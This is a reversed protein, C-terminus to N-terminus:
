VGERVLELYISPLITGTNDSNSVFLRMFHDSQIYLTQDLELQDNPSMTITDIVTDVNSPDTTQLTITYSNSSGASGTEIFSRVKYYGSTRPTLRTAENNYWYLDGLVNSNANFEVDGWTVATPTSTTSVAQTNIVKVGSFASHNSIGTGPAFGLRYMTFNTEPNLVGLGTSEKAKVSIFDGEVLSLTVDLNVNQNAGFNIDDILESDNKYVGANYSAGTGTSSAFISVLIRYFGTSPAIGKDNTLQFYNDVNFEITDFPVTQYTSTLDFNAPLSAKVGSFVKRTTSTILNWVTSDSDYQWVAQNPDNYTSLHAPSAPFQLAPM